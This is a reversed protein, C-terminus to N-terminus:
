DQTHFLSETENFILNFSNEENLEEIPQRVGELAFVQLGRGLLYAIDKTKGCMPVFIKKSSLNSTEGVLKDFYEILKPNVDNIHWGTKKEDWRNKWYEVDSDFDRPPESGSSM